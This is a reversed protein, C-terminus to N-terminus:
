KIIKILSEELEVLLIELEKKNEIAESLKEDTKEIDTIINNIDNELFATNEELNKITYISSRLNEIFNTHSDRELNINKIEHKIFDIQQKINIINEILKNNNDNQIDYGIALSIDPIYVHQEYKPGNNRSFDKELDIVFDAKIILNYHAGYQVLPIRRTGIGVIQSPETSYLDNSSNNFFYLELRLDYIETIRLIANMHLDSDIMEDPNNIQEDIGGTAQFRLETLTLNPHGTRTLYDLISIWFCQNKMTDKQGNNQIVILNGGGNQKKVLSLYKMKYKLYKKKFKEEDM